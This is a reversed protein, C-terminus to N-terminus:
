VLPFVLTGRIMTLGAHGAAYFTIDGNTNVEILFPQGAQNCSTFNFKRVPTGFGSINCATMRTDKTMSTFAINYYFIGIKGVRYLIFSTTNKDMNEAVPTIYDSSNVSLNSNIADIDQTTSEELSTVKAGLGSLGTSLTDIASKVTQLKGSLPIASFKNVLYTGLKAFTASRSAHGSETPAAVEMLTDDAMQSELAEEMDSIKIHEAM